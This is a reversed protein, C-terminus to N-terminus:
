KIKKFLYTDLNKKIINNICLLKYIDDEINNIKKKQDQLWMGININEFNEKRMPIRKMKDVFKFLLDKTEDFTYKLKDKNKEKNVLYNDLNEKIIENNSLLKYISDEINNIKNKQHHLWKGININEFEEKNMPIRKM